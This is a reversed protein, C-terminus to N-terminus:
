EEFLEVLLKRLEGIVEDFAPLNSLQHALGRKWYGGALEIKKGVLFDTPSSFEIQKHECKAKFIRVAEGGNIKKGYQKLLAWVDYYDRSKGRELISRLKEGMIEEISYSKIRVNSDDPYVPILKLAKIDGIIPEDQTVDVKIINKYGSAKLLPGEYYLKLGVYGPYKHSGESPWALGQAEISLNMEKQCNRCAAQFVRKIALPEMPQILTFDLDESFRWEPFFLKKIATGGKFVFNEQFVQQQSLSGLIKTLVYDREIIGPDVGAKAAIKKIETESLM